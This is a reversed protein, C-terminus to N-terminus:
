FTRALLEILGQKSAIIQRSSEEGLPYFSHHNQDLLIANLHSAGKRGPESRMILVPKIRETEEFNVGAVTLKARFNKTNEAFLENPIMFVKGERLLHYLLSARAIRKQKINMKLKTQNKMLRQALRGGRASPINSVQMRGGGIRSRPQRSMGKNAPTSSIHRRTGAGLKTAQPQKKNTLCTRLYKRILNKKIPIFKDKILLLGEELVEALKKWSASEGELIRVRISGIKKEVFPYTALLRAEDVGTESDMRTTESSESAAKMESM